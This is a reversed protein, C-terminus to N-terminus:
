CRAQRDVIDGALQKRREGFRVPQQRLIMLDACNEGREVSTEDPWRWTAVDQMGGVNQRGPAINVTEVGEANRAGKRHAIARSLRLTQEIGIDFAAIRQGLGDRHDQPAAVIQFRFAARKRLSQRQHTRHRAKVAIAPDCTGCQHRDFFQTTRADVHHDRDRADETIQHRQLDLQQGLRGVHGGGGIFRGLHVEDSLVRQSILALMAARELNGRQADVAIGFAGVARVDVIKDFAAAPCFLVLQGFGIRPALTEGIAAAAPRDLLGRQQLAHQGIHLESILVEIRDFETDGGDVVIEIGEAADGARDLPSAAALGRRDEDAILSAAFAGNACEFILHREFGARAHEVRFPEFAHELMAVLTHTLDLNM